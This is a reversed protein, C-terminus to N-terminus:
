KQPPLVSITEPKFVDSHFLEGNGTMFGDVSDASVLRSLYPQLGDSFEPSTNFSDSDIVALAVSILLAGVAFFGTWLRRKKVSMDTALTLSGYLLALGACASLVSIFLSSLSKGTSFFGLYDQLAAITVMACVFLSVFAVHSRFRSKHRVLKGAVAWLASWLFIAIGTSFATGGLEAAVEIDWSDFYKELVALVLALSFMSWVTIPNALWVLFPNARQMRLAPAVPHAPDFVRISTRGIRVTDGSKLAVGVAKHQKDNLLLGNESGTDHVTFTQGDFDLRLHQASVHPDGVIIDNHYGRGINAPFSEISRHSINGDGAHSTIELVLKM